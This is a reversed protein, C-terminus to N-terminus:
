NRGMAEVMASVNHRFMAIYDPAPGNPPSLADSYLTGGIVAGGDAVLQKLLRPDSMNELFVARVHRARIQDILHAVTGASVDGSTSLGLPAIFTVGYANAFYRLADHSTIASRKSEPVLAMQALVWRDLDGLRSQYREANKAYDEAHAPDAKALAAAIVSVYRRGNAVDQWAHPDPAGGVMLPTVKSSAVIIRGHVGASEVLRDLWGELGLGNVIVIDAGNIARVDAPTPEYVHADGDPGVLSTVEAYEGAVNKTMDALISFTVVVKLPQAQATLPLLFLFLTTLLLHYTTLARSNYKM